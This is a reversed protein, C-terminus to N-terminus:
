PQFRMVRTDQTTRADAALRAFGADEYLAARSLAELVAEARAVCQSHSKMAAAVDEHALYHGKLGGNRGNDSKLAATLEPLSGFAQSLRTNIEVLLTAPGAALCWEVANEITWDVPWQLISRPPPTAAVLDAVYQDGARDGDVLAILGGHLERLSEFTVKMASDRTPIVGVISGFPPVANPSPTSPRCAMETVDLLLRLWEFDIRGEPILLYPYMLAEVVRIRQETYLQILPNPMAATSGSLLPYGGLREVPPEEPTSGSVMVRRLMQVSSPEFFAAVRPAHTTCIVQDSVAAAEGILRRQLGPPVHLEPEELALIFSRGEERRARGIELLLVLTQLALLGTGHRAAPVSVDSEFAYHPVLAQLLSESDTSTVRLHLRPRGPVLQAMRENINHVLPSIAPDQELPSDPNRLADRHALVASAPVGGLTAVAKRFLESAFSITAPWVRRAPLVFFGVESLLKSPVLAIPEDMFPDLVEEDDHFYRRQDVVLEDHDFRAVYGIRVCLASGDAASQPEVKCTGPNWWQEIGRGDSFWQPHNAPDNTAFGGVTAIIRLRAERTPASGSFDHETLDRVLKQRGFVLSLADIITSKGSGTPGVLAVHPPFVLRASRIGRFNEIQLDLIHL